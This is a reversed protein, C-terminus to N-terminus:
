REPLVVDAVVPRHDSGSATGSHRAVVGIGPTVLIQDIPIQLPRPMWDPWSPAPWGLPQATRLGAAAVFRRYAPSWPTVNCDCMFLLPRPEARVAEAIYHLQRNRERWRDAGKPSMTHVGAFRLGGAPTDVVAMVVTFGVEPLEHFAADHVPWRSFLAMDKRAPRQAPFAYPFMDGAGRLAGYVGDSMEAVFLIDPRQRRVEALVRRGDNNPEWANFTMVRVPQVGPGLAVMPAADRYISSADWLHVGALVVLVAGWGWQRRWLLAGALLVAVGAFQLRLHSLLDAAWFWEGAFSFVSAAVFGALLM